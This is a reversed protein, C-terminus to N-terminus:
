YIFEFLRLHRFSNVGVKIPTVLCEFSKFRVIEICLVYFYHKQLAYQYFLPMISIFVYRSIHTKFVGGIDYAFKEWGKRGHQYLNDDLNQGVTGLDLPRSSSSALNSEHFLDSSPFNWIKGMIKTMKRKHKQKKVDQQTTAHKDSHKDAM